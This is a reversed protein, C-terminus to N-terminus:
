GKPTKGGYLFCYLERKGEKKFAEVTERLAIITRSQDARKVVQDAISKRLAQITEGQEECVQQSLELHAKLSNVQQILIREALTMTKGESAAKGM